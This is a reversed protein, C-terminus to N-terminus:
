QQLIRPKFGVQTKGALLFPTEFEVVHELLGVTQIELNKIVHNVSSVSNGPTHYSSGRIM